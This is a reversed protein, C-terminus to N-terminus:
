TMAAKIAEVGGVMPPSLAPGSLMPGCLTRAGPKQGSLM